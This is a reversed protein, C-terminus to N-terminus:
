FAGAALGRLDDAGVQPPPILEASCCRDLLQEILEARALIQDADIMGPLIRIEITDRAPVDSLLATLNIDFFKSLGVDAAVQQLAPWDDITDTLEVLRIPLAKIRTASANTGLARWLEGRWSTFLRVLNTFPRAARFPAGDFHLHVAAEVPVFFGLARAHGLLLELTARHDSSLPATVIECPRERGRAISTAMAVTAGDEDDLRRVPGIVDVDTGFLSGTGQLVQDFPAGAHEHRALLRLLRPEDSLIRYWGDRADVLEPSRVADHLDAVLTIDDVFSAVLDGHADSVEFAPTLHWFQGMGPVKSPESDTHFVPTVSGDVADAIREALARRDSGPPAMIEIEFGVRHRLATM